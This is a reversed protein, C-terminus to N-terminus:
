INYIRRLLLHLKLNIVPYLWYTLWYVWLNKKKRIHEPPKGGVGLKASVFHAM